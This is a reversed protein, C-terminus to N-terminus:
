IDPSLKHRIPTITLAIMGTIGAAEIEDKIHADFLAIQIAESEWGKFICAKLHGALANNRHLFESVRANNIDRQEAFTKINIGERALAAIFAQKLHKMILVYIIIRM